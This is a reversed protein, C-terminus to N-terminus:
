TDSGSPHSLERIEHLEEAVDEENEAFYGLMVECSSVFMFEKNWETEFEARQESSPFEVAIVYNIGPLLNAYIGTFNLLQLIRPRYTPDGKLEELVEYGVSLPRVDDLEGEEVEMPPFEELRTDLVKILFVRDAKEFQEALDLMPCSYANGMRPILISLAIVIALRM